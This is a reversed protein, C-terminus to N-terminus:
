AMATLFNVVARHPVVTGKPKGTSGSTYILYAPDEPRAATDDDPLATDPLESIWGADRDLLLTVAPPMQLLGVLAEETVLQALGADNVMYALREAPFGPDLPVYAAGAKLVAVQAVVMDLGRELCLGVRAGRGLGRARLARALRNTRSQLDGYSLTTGEFTLAAREPTRQAQSEFLDHVRRSRDHELATDNWARILGLQQADLIKMQALPRTPAEAMAQLLTEYSALWRSVTEPSFLDANYQCELRLGTATQAINLFLEFAEFRRHVPMPELGVDRSGFGDLNFPQDLNFMAAVLPVRAPDRAIQLTQLLTGFTYQQHELADLMLDKSSAVWEVAPQAPDVRFRIPLLNVCHGVLGDMGARSQGASPVGVVIDDQGSLRALLAAFGAALVNFLSAGASGGLRRLDKVLLGDLLRDERRSAFSRLPPRKHDLPLDLRPLEGEFRSLWYREHVALDPDGKASAELAAYDSFRDAPPLTDIGASCAEGYLRALDKVIVGLSWGDCVIHHSALMLVHHLPDLVLLQARLLPGAVLDFPAEVALAFRRDVSQVRAAEDLTTLDVLEVPVEVSSAILLALGDSSLTARLSEHRQALARMAQGLAATQLVGTLKFAVVQNYALSGELGMQAALWIERQSETTPVVRELDNGAFPDFDEENALNPAM